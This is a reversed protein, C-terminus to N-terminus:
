KISDTWILKVKERLVITKDINVKQLTKELLQENAQKAQHYDVVVRSMRTSSEQKPKRKRIKKEQNAVSTDTDILTELNRFIDNRKQVTKNFSELM